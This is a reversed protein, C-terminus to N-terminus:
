FTRFLFIRHDKRKLGFFALIHNKKKNIQSIEIYIFIIWSFTSKYFLHWDDEFFQVKEFLVISYYNITLNQLVVARFFPMAERYAFLHRSLM